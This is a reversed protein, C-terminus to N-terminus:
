DGNNNGIWVASWAVDAIHTFADNFNVVIKNTKDSDNADFIGDAGGANDDTGATFDIPQGNSALGLTMIIDTSYPTWDYTSEWLSVNNVQIDDIYVINAVIDAMCYVGYFCSAGNNAVDVEVTYQHWNTDAADLLVTTDATDDCGAALTDISFGIKNTYLAAAGLKACFTITDGTTATFAAADSTALTEGSATAGDGTIKISGTGEHIITTEDAAAGGEGAAWDDAADECTDAFKPDAQALVAGKIELTNQTEQLGSYVVEQSKQTSFLGASLVTYAFVAAVVVFAILIIATELGTIGHQAKYINKFYKKQKLIRKLM